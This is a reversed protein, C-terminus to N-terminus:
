AWYCIFYSVGNREGVLIAPVFQNKIFTLDLDKRASIVDVYSKIQGDIRIIYPSSQPYDFGPVLVKYHDFISRGEIEPMAELYNIVDKVAASTNPWMDHIPYTRIQCNMWPSIQYDNGLFDYDFINYKACIDKSVSIEFGALKSLIIAAQTYSIRNFGLYTQDATKKEILNLTKGLELAMSYLGFKKFHDHKVLAKERDQDYQGVYRYFQNFHSPQSEWLDIGKKKLLRLDIHSPRVEKRLKDRKGRDPILHIHRGNKFPSDISKKFELWKIHDKMIDQLCITVEYSINASFSYTALKLLNCAYSSFSGERESVLDGDYLTLLSPHKIDIDRSFRTLAPGLGWGIATTIERDSYVLLKTLISSQPISGISKEYPKKVRELIDEQEKRLWKYDLIM